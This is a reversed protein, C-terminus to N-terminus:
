QEEEEQKQAAEKAERKAKANAALEAFSPTGPLILSKGTPAATTGPFMDALTPEIPAVKPPPIRATLLDLLQSQEDTAGGNSDCIRRAEAVNSRASDMDNSKLFGIAELLLEEPTKAAADGAAVDSMIFVNSREAVTASRGAIAALPSRATIPTRVCLADCCTALLAVLTTACLVSRLLMHDSIEPAQPTEKRAGWLM